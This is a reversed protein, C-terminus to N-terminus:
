SNPIPNSIFRNGDVSLLNDDQMRRLARYLAEHSLGLEAAWSKKTQTLNVEGNSGESEIYHSIRDVASNLSLRECQARLKRVEKALLSQWGRRFAPEDNLASRFAAIPFRILVTPEATIADCHYARTELSAEAIFGCRSRQLIIEQGNSGQRKLRAEGEVVLFIYRVPDGIRFLATGSKANVQKAVNCLTSPVLGACPALAILAPWDLNKVDNEM